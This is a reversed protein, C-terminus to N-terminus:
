HRTPLKKSNIPKIEILIFKIWTRGSVYSHKIYRTWKKLHVSVFPMLACNKLNKLFRTYCKAHISKACVAAKLEKGMRVHVSKRILVITKRDVAM